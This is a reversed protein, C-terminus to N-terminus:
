ELLKKCEDKCLPKAFYYGQIADCNLTELMRVQKEHEVGEAVLKLKLLKGIKIIVKLLPDSSDQELLEDVFSKDIKLIDVPLKKLYSLSSYGTGFDDLAIQIGKSRLRELKASSAEMTQMLVSETIELVLRNPEIGNRVLAELVYQEFDEQILQLVSVNIGMHLDPSNLESLFQLAEDIVWKGIPMIMQTEEAIPIFEHPPLQGMEPHHWRLLAEFGLITQQNTDYQPQYVLSLEDNEMAVKLAEERTVRWLIGEFMDSEYRVARGRGQEKARYMALDAKTLLSELSDGDHPYIAYGISISNSFKGYEVQIVCNLGVLLAECLSELEQLAQFKLHIVFEDGNIRYVRAKFGLQQEILSGVAQIYRDGFHHGMTDNIRKFHDIDILLLAYQHLSGKVEQNLHSELATKNPLGTLKDHFAAYRLQDEMQKIADIDTYSSIMRTLNGEADRRIVGKVLFWKYNGDKTRLRIQTLFDNAINLRRSDFYSKIQPLDEEHVFDFFFTPSDIHKVPFGIIKEWRDSVTFTEEKINWDVITDKIADLILENKEKSAQLEDYLENLADFQAKLEEESASLEDYLHKLENKLKVSRRLAIGLIILFIVLLGMVLAVTLIVTRYTEFISIPRNIVQVSDPLREYDLDFREAAQYDIVNMHINESVLPIEDAPTGNLIETALLGAQNGILKASLLTGGLAGNGLAFDYLSFVAAPTADSVKEIMDEFNINRGNVDTYYATMLVSDNPSLMSVFDVIAEITKDTVIVAEIQPYHDAIESAAAEGMAKGSETQDHVIYFRKMDPNVMMAVELTAKIDVIELVGTLNKDTSKVLSAYSSESIGHFIVPINSFLKARNQLVFSLAADDSAIILDISTKEYKFAMLQAFLALTEDTPHEKWDLFEVYFRVDGGYTKKITDIEANTSDDTWSLGHHYSNIILVSKQEGTQAQTFAIPSYFNIVVILMMIIIVNRNRIAEHSIRMFEEYTSLRQHIIGGNM